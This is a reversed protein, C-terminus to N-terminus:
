LCVPFACHGIINTAPWQSTGTAGWQLPLYAADEGIEGEQVLCTASIAASCTGAVPMAKHSKRRGLGVAILVIFLSISITALIAQPSYGCTLYEMPLHNFDRNASLRRSSSYESNLEIEFSVLFLSPSCLWHLIGSLVM